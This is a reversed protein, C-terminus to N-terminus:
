GAGAKTSDFYGKLSCLQRVESRRWGAEVWYYWIFMDPKKGFGEGGVPRLTALVYAHPNNKKRSQHLSLDVVYGRAVLESNCWDRVAEIQQQRNLQVPLSVIFERALESDSRKEVKEITNWLRERLEKGRTTGLGGNGNESKLWFAANEPAMVESHTVEAARSRYNFTKESREDKLSVSRYAAKAVVAVLKGAIRQGAKDKAKRGIIQAELCYHASRAPM